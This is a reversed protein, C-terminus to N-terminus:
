WAGDAVGCPEGPRYEECWEKIEEELEIKEPKEFLFSILVVLFMTFFFAAPIFATHEIKLHM